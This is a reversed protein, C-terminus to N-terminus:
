YSEVVGIEEEATILVKMYITGNNVYKKLINQSIIKSKNRSKLIFSEKIKELSKKIADEETVRGVKKNIKFSKSINIGFNSGGITKIVKSNNYKDNFIKYKKGLINLIINYQKKNSEKYEAKVLPYNVEVEYWVEAYIKGSACVSNKIEENYIIDGSILIDGQNVYNNEQVMVIGKSAKIRTITGSKKAIYNCRINRNSNKKIKREIIFVDYTYGNPKIELWEIDDKYKILLNNKIKSIDKYSKKFTFKDVKYDMLFFRINNKLNLNNTHINVKVILLNSLFTILIVIFTIIIYLYNNRLFDKFRNLGYYSVFSIVKRYDNKVLVNYEDETVKFFCENKLCKSSVININSQIVRKVIYDYDKYSCKFIVYNNM